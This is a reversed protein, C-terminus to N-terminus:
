FAFCTVPCADEALELLPLFRLVPRLGMMVVSPLLHTHIHTATQTRAHTHATSYIKSAEAIERRQGVRPAGSAREIRAEESM